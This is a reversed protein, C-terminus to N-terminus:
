SKVVCDQSKVVRLFFGKSFMPFPSFAPFWRKRRKGCHKRDMRFCMEIRKIVNMKDDAFAKLKFWDFIKDNPLSIRYFFFFIFFLSAFPSFITILMKEVWLIIEFKLSLCLRQFWMLSTGQLICAKVACYWSEFVRFNLLSM